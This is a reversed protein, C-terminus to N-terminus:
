SSKGNEITWLTTKHNSSKDFYLSDGFTLIKNNISYPLIKKIIDRFEKTKFINIM